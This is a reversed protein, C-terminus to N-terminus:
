TCSMRGTRLLWKLIALQNLARPHLTASSRQPTPAHPPHDPCRRDVVHSHGTSTTTHCGIRIHQGKPACSQVQSTIKPQRNDATHLPQLVHLSSCHPDLPACNPPSSYSGGAPIPHAPGLEVPLPVTDCHHSAPRLIGGALSSPTHIHQSTYFAPFRNSPASPALSYHAHQLNPPNNVREQTDANNRKRSQYHYFAPIPGPPNSPM